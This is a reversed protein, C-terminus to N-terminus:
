AGVGARIVVPGGKAVPIVQWVAHVVPVVRRVEHVVFAYVDLGTGKKILSSHFFTFPNIEFSPIRKTETQATTLTRANLVQGMEM